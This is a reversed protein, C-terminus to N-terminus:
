LNMARATDLANAAKNYHTGRHMGKEEQGTRKQGAKDQETRDGGTTRRDQGTMERTREETKDQAKQDQRTLKISRTLSLNFSM